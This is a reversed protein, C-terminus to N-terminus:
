TKLGMRRRLDAYRPDSRLSEFYPEWIIRPLRGSRVQFDKELWVFAQDNDGLATYLAAVDAGLAEHREYKGQMEKLINLADSRRGAKAYGYGLNRFSGRDSASLEIAKKFEAIAESYRGQKVYGLGLQSHGRAHNPDLDIIKRSEEISSNVDGKLLYLQALNVAIVHSVPDLEHARKIETEAEDFRGVDRLYLNYWHHATAYNPDLKLAQKFETEAEDWRWLQQYAYALSTHAEALSGDLELARQAFAMAKPLTESAPTGAYEELVLYCDALGAYALAYKPDLDTAQQFQEMARKTNEATRKNWYYRGKLYLQYAQANSADRRTLQKQEEGSLKLRLQDTIERSIEQQLALADALKRNYQEGWIQKNERVDLLEASFIMSDGRQLLRGTLVARVGLDQGVKAPDNDKGKYHFVSSRPSVRLSPLQALNNIISETLGDSLYETDANRDQNAFPLVAISDIAVESSRSRLYGVGFAIGLVLIGIVLVAALKHQKIGSVVYEASSARTALMSVNRAAEIQDETEEAPQTKPSISRELKREFELEQSLNKLDLLMDKITQYREDRNKRLAKSVIRELEAPVERSYRALPQPHQDNLISAMVESSTSGEFPLHGAVMEYLVSGLSFIDTRADVPLGRAQEPSMYAATGVVTGPDTKFSTPAEADVSDSPLRETLKALGFDLVKVIGDQRLMINEPKIDRHVIGAAHAASLASAIQAAVDLVDDLKVSSKIKQRLTEGDIYETAIYNVSEPQDIEYITLINPHNLASAAKAEQTFRTMRLRDAAVDSPLVKLAVKRDLKTDHALYVEGMGGAGLKSIIRYHSLNSNSPLDAM